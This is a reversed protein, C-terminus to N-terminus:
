DAPVFNWSVRVTGLGEGGLMDAVDYREAFWIPKDVSAEIDGPGYVPFDYSGSLELGQAEFEGKIPNVGKPGEIQEDGSRGTVYVNGIFYFGYRCDSSVNLTMRSGEIPPGEGRMVMDVRHEDTNHTHEESSHAITGTMATALFGAADENRYNEELRASVNVDVAYVVHDPYGGEVDRAHSYSITGQWAEVEVARSCEGVTVAPQQAVATVPALAGDAAENDRGCGSLVLALALLGVDITFVRRAVCVM